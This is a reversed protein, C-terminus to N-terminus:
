SGASRPGGPAGASSRTLGLRLEPTELGLHAPTIHFDALLRDAPATRYHYRPGRCPVADSIAEETGFRVSRGTWEVAESDTMASIGPIRHDVIVWEGLPDPSSPEACGRYVIGDIRVIAAHPWLRDSMGDSCRDLWIRADIAARETEGTWHLTDGTIAPTMPPFRIGVTDDPTTFRLGTSDIILGWFPETGIARFSSTPTLGVPVPASASIVDVELVRASDSEDSPKNGSCLPFVFAAGGLFCM